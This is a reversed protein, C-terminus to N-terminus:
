RPTSHRIKARLGHYALRLYEDTLANIGTPEKKGSGIRSHQLMSKVIADARKGHSNIKRENDKIDAAIVLAEKQNGAKLEETMEDILETNVESFNNMFNLPNQIEHAIGATLEGLSAMKESQILQTQTVKLENYAKEIEKAQALDRARTREREASIVRQKQIRHWSYIFSVALLGYICYAWWSAWWPPTVIVEISKEAWVGEGSVAKIRFIYRGPPINYYYAIHDSGAPRWDKEYNELMYMVTNAEPSAYHVVNYHFSFVNQDHSLTIQKRSFFDESVSSNSESKVSRDSVRFDTLVIEPAVKNISIKDPNLFYYGNESGFVLQGDMKKFAAFYRLSSTNIGFNKGFRSVEDRSKNIRYIFSPSSVWLNEDKDEVMARTIISSGTSRDTFLSFSDVGKKQYFLGSETGVWIRGSVDEHIAVVSLHSLYTKFQGTKRDFVHLGGEGHTGVWFNHRNDELICTVLNKGGMVTDSPYVKYHTFVGKKVDMRDLGYLTAVWFNSQADEYLSFIVDAAVSNDDKPDHKYTKFTGQDPNFLNLGAGGWGTWIRGENDKYLVLIAHDNSTGNKKEPMFLQAGEGNRDVRLLGTDLGLYQVGITRGFLCEIGQPTYFNKPFTKTPLIM